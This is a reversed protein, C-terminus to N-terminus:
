KGSLYSQIETITQEFSWCFVAKYGLANLQAITRQQNLLHDKGSAKIQGDKKFPTEIKLEIFLGAYKGNPKLIILDPTKFGQKQISKNRNAQPITLKVSAVTDSMFLVSPYQLTLWQCVMKQLEFEKNQAM